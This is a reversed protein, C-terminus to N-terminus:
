PDSRRWVAFISKGVSGHVLPDICRSLPVMTRDWLKIQAPTPTGAKLLFRNAASAVLGVSDLYRMEVSVLGDAACAALSRRNYRRYHGVEADFPSYLFQHAPALVVLHGGPLLLNRAAAVEASDDEIHELVDIYLITDFKEHAAVLDMITGCAVRCNQPLMAARMIDVQRADPDLCLWDECADSVLQTTNTAIGAGNELVRRGLYRRVHRQWYQKWNVAHEFLGLEGSYRFDAM